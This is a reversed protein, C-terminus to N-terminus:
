YKKGLLEDINKNNLYDNLENVKKHYIQKNYDKHTYKYYLYYIGLIISICVVINLCKNITEQIDQPSTLKKVISPKIFQSYDVLKPKNMNYCLIKNQLKYM